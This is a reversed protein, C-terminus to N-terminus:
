EGDDHATGDSALTHRALMAGGAALALLLLPRSRLVTPLAIAAASAYLATRANDQEARKRRRRDRLAMMAYIVLMIALLAGALILCTIFLGFQPALYAALAIMAFAWATLGLLVMVAYLVAHQKVRKMWTSFEGAVLGSLLSIPM